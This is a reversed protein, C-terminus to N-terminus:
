EFSKGSITVDNYFISQNIRDSKHLMWIAVRSKRLLLYEYTLRVNIQFQYIQIEQFFENKHVTNYMKKKYEMCEIQKKKYRVYCM